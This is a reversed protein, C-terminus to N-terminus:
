QHLSRHAMAPSRFFENLDVDFEFAPSLLFPTGENLRERRLWGARDALLDDGFPASGAEAPLEARTLVVRWVKDSM